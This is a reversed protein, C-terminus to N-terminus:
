PGAATVVDLVAGDQASLSVLLMSGDTGNTRTAAVRIAGGDRLLAPGALLAGLPVLSDVAGGVSYTVVGGTGFGPDLAGGSTLRAVVLAPPAQPEPRRNTRCSDSSSPSTTM